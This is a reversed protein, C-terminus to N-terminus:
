NGLASPIISLHCDAPHTNKKLSLNKSCSPVRKSAQLKFTFLDKHNSIAEIAM